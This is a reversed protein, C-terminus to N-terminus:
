LYCKIEELLTNSSIPKSLFKDAGLAIAKKKEPSFVKGSLIVVPISNIQPHTKINKLLTFGDIDPMMIDLIILKPKIQCLSEIAIEPNSIPETKFGLHNFLQSTNQLYLENDDIIVIDASM